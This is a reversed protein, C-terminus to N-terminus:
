RVLWYGPAIHDFWSLRREDSHCSYCDKELVRKVQPPAQIEATAPRFPISPRVLQLLVFGAATALILKGFVKM